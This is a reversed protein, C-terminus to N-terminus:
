VKTGAFRDIKPFVKSKDVYYKRFLTGLVQGSTAVVMDSIFKNLKAADLGPPPGKAPGGLGEWAAWTAATANVDPDFGVFYEGGGVGDEKGYALFLVVHHSTGSNFSSQDGGLFTDLGKVIVPANTDLSAKVSDWKGSLPAFKPDTTFDPAKPKVKSGEPLLKWALATARQECDGGYNPCQLWEELDKSTTDKGQPLRKEFLARLEALKPKTVEDGKLQKQEIPTPKSTDM